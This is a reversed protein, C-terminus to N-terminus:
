MTTITSSVNKTIEKTVIQFFYIELTPDLGASSFGSGSTWSVCVPFSCSV